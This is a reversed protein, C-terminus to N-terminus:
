RIDGEARLLLADLVVGYETNAGVIAATADILTVTLQLTQGPLVLHPFERFDIPSGGALEMLSGLNAAHNEGLIPIQTDLNVLQVRANMAKSAIRERVSQISTMFGLALAETAQSLLAVHAHIRTIALKYTSPVRYIDTGTGAAALNAYIPVVVRKYEELRASSLEQMLDQM